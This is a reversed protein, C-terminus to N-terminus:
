HEFNAVDDPTGYQADPGPAFFMFTDPRHPWVKGGIGDSTRNQEFLARDYAAGAFSRVPPAANPAGVGWGLYKMPHDTGAGLDIGVLGDEESGTLTENDRQTYRGPRPVGNIGGTDAPDSFPLTAQDNAVYYLVPMGFADVAFPLRGNNWSSSGAAGGNTADLAPPLLRTASTNRAFYEPTQAVKGELQAYPGFRHFAAANPDSADYYKQWDLYDILGNADADPYRYQDGAVYGKTDPGALELILWQAGSLQINAGPPEFPNPGGSRPYRQFDRQFMECGKSLAEILARTSSKKAATKAASIAPVLVGILLSIIAIVTLLEILTFGRRRLPHATRM